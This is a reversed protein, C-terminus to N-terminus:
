NNTYFIRRVSLWLVDTVSSPRRVSSLRILLEVTVLTRDALFWFVAIGNILM